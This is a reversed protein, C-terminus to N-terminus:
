AARDEEEEKPRVMTEARPETQTHLHSCNQLSPKLAAPTGLGRTTGLLQNIGELKEGEDGAKELSLPTWPPEAPLPGEPSARTHREAKIFGRLLERTGNQRDGDWGYWSM